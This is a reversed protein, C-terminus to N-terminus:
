SGASDDSEQPMSVDLLIMRTILDDGTFPKMVFDDVGALLARAMMEPESETTVMIIKTSACRELARVARTFEVGNMVPMNWDVLAVEINDSSLIQVLGARGNEAELIDFGLPALIRTLIRRMARSDDIILAQM